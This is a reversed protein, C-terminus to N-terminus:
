FDVYVYGNHTFGPDFALGLLGEETGLSTNDSLDLFPTPKLNGSADVVRIRGERELVFLRKSGDPPGVVYTPEKLGKAVPALTLDKGQLWDSQARTRVRAVVLNTGVLGVLVLVVVAPIILRLRPM